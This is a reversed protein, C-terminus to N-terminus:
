RAFLPTYEVAKQVRRPTLPADAQHAIREQETPPEYGPILFQGDRDMSYVSRPATRREAGPLVYQFGAKTREVNTM